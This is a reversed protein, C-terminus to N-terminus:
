RPSLEMTATFFTYKTTTPDFIRYVKTLYIQNIIDNLGLLEKNIKKSPHSDILSLPTNFDGVVV